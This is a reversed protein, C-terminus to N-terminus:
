YFENKLSIEGNIVGKTYSSYVSRLYSELLMINLGNKGRSRKGKVEIAKKVISAYSPPQSTSHVLVAQKDETTAEWTQHDTTSPRSMSKSVWSPEQDFSIISYLHISINYSFVFNVIHLRSRRRAKHKQM